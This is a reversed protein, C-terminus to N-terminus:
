EQVEMQSDFLDKKSQMWSQMAEPSQMLQMMENMAKLHDPEQQAAMDLGHKRSLEAIEDFTVAKFVEECAGGLQQCTLSKM